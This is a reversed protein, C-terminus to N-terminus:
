MKAIDESTLTEINKDKLVQKAKELNGCKLVISANSGDISLGYMYEINIDKNSLETILTQM